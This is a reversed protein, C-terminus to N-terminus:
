ADSLDAEGPEVQYVQCTVYQGDKANWSSMASSNYLICHMYQLACLPYRLECDSYM